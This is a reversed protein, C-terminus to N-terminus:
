QQSRRAVCPVVPVRKEGGKKRKRRARQLMLLLSRKVVGLGCFRSDVGLPCVARVGFLTRHAEAHGMDMGFLVLCVSVFGFCCCCQSVNQKAGGTVTSSITM